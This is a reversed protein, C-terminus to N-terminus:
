NHTGICHESEVYTHFLSVIRDVSDTALLCPNPIRQANVLSVCVSKTYVSQVLETSEKLFQDWWPPLTM